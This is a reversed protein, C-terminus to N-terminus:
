NQDTFPGDGENIKYSMGKDDLAKKLADTAAEWDEESGM